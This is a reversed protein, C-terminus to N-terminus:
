RSRSQAAGVLRAFGARAKARARADGLLKYAHQFSLALGIFEFVFQEAEAKTLARPRPTDAYVRGLGERWEAQSTVLLDRIPGPRDDYEQALTVFLCGAKRGRGVLWDLYREFITSLREERKASLAPEIVQRRFRAIAEELVALELAEKSKFHAFLGSKSLGLSEALPALSLGAFGLRTAQALAEDIIAERTVAGKGM